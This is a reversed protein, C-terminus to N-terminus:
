SNPAVLYHGFKKLDSKLLAVPLKQNFFYRVAWRVVFLLPVLFLLYLYVKNEWTFSNLTGPFFWNLSYWPDLM